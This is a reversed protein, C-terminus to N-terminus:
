SEDERRRRRGAVLLFGLGLLSGAAVVWGSPSSGTTGLREAGSAAAPVAAAPLDAGGSEVPDDVAVPIDVGDEDCASSPLPGAAADRLVASLSFDAFEDQAVKQPVDLMTIMFDIRTTAGAALPRSPVLVDCRQLLGLDSERRSGRDADVTTLTMSSALEASSTSISSVSIRLEAAASSDNRLWLSAEVEDQPVLVGAEDFLGGRFEPFFGVGDDSVLLQPQDAARAAPAAGGAIGGGLVVVSALAVAATARIGGRM